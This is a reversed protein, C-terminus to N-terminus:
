LIYGISHLADDSNILRVVKQQLLWQQGQRALRYTIDAAYHRSSGKRHEWLSQACRVVMQHEDAELLRFRSLTRLTRARPTTSISEGSYLRQVRKARMSHDDYAYNLSNKFDTEQPDIPIVYLGEPQWLTLWGDFDGQDLLDGELNILAIADFLVTNSTQM